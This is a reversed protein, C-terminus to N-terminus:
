NNASMITRQDLQESNLQNLIAFANPISKPVDIEFIAVMILPSGFHM